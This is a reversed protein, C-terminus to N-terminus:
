LRRELEDLMEDTTAWSAVFRVAARDGDLREWIEFAAYQRLREIQARTLIFFQQNTPSDIFLPYGKATFM